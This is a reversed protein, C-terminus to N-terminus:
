RLDGKSLPNDQRSSASRHSFLGIICQVAFLCAAFLVALGFPHFLYIPDYVAPAPDFFLHLSM